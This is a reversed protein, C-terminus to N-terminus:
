RTPPGVVLRRLRRAAQCLDAIRQDTMQLEAKEVEELATELAKLRKNMRALLVSSVVLEGERLGLQKSRKRSQYARQRCSQSCYVRNRGSHNRPGLAQRCWECFHQVSRPASKSRTASPRPVARQSTPGKRSHETSAGAPLDTRSSSLKRRMEIPYVDPYVDASLVSALGLRVARDPRNSSGNLQSLTTGSALASSTVPISGSFSSPRIWRSVPASRAGLKPGNVETRIMDPVGSTDAMVGRERGNNYAEAHVLHSGAV